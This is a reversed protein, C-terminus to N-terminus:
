FSTEGCSWTIGPLRQVQCRRLELFSLQALWFRMSNLMDLSAKSLPASQVSFGFCRSSIYNGVQGSMCAARWETRGAALWFDTRDIEDREDGDTPAAV